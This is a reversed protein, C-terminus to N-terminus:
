LLLSLFVIGSLMTQQSFPKKFGKSCIEYPMGSADYKLIRCARGTACDHMNLKTILLWLRRQQMAEASFDDEAPLQPIRASVYQDVFEPTRLDDNKELTLLFHIHPM